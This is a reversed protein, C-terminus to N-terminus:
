QSAEKLPVQDPEDHVVKVSAMIDALPLPQFAVVTNDGNKIYNLGMIGHSINLGFIEAALLPQQIWINHNNQNIVIVLMVSGKPHTLCHNVSIGQPLNNVAATDILCPTSSPIRTNTGLRGSITLASNGPVCIPQNINGICVKGCLGDENISFQQAKTLYSSSDLPTLLLVTWSSEM